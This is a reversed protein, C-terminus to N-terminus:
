ANDRRAVIVVFGAREDLTERSSEEHVVQGPVQYLTSRGAIISMGAEAIWCSVTKITYFNAHEYFIHGAAKKAALHRGWPSGAPIMGVILYCGKKLIRACELVIQPPVNGFCLTFLLYVTGIAGGKVPLAEGLGQCCLIGRQRAMQLPARAPDLGFAIGLDRAFHGPGVGIEMKPGPLKSQVSRLAALEIKYIQSDTFWNDYENAHEQFVKAAQYPDSWQKRKEASMDAVAKDM